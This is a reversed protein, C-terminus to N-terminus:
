PTRGRKLPMRRIPVPPRPVILAAVNVDLTVPESEVGKDNVVVLAFRHRGAALKNDVRLLPKDQEVPKGVPLVAM